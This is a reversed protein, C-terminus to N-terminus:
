RFVVLDLARQGQRDIVCQLVSMSSVENLRDSLGGGSLRGAPRADDGHDLLAKWDVGVASLSGHSGASGRWAVMHRFLRHREPGPWPRRGGGFAGHVFGILGHTIIEDAIAVLPPDVVDLAGSVVSWPGDARPM